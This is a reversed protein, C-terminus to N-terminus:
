SFDQIPWIKRLWKVFPTAVSCPGDDFSLYLVNEKRNGHWTAQPFLASALHYVKDPLLM